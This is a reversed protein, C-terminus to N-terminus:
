SGASPAPHTASARAPLTQPEWQLGVSWQRGWQSGDRCGELAPRDGMALSQVSGEVFLELDDLGPNPGPCAIHGQTPPQGERARLNEWQSFPKPGPHRLGRQWLEAPGQPPRAHPHPHYRMFQRSGRSRSGRLNMQSPHTPPTPATEEIDSHRWRPIWSSLNEGRKQPPEYTPKM